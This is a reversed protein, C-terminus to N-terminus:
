KGLLKAVFGKNSLRAQWYPRFLSSYENRHKNGGGSGSVGGIGSGFGSMNFDPRAFFTQAASTTTVTLNNPGSKKLTTTFGISNKNKDNLDFFPKVGGGFWTQKNSVAKSNALPNSDGDAINWSTSEKVWRWFDQTSFNDPPNDIHEVDVVTSSSSPIWGWGMSYERFYCGIWRNSRLAHFSQTDISQWRGMDDMKSYGRRRLEHRKSPCRADVIWNNKKTYDRPALFKYLDTVQRIFPILQQGSYLKVYNPWSDDNIILDFEHKYRFKFTNAKYENLGEINSQISQNNIQNTAYPNSNKYNNTTAGADNVDVYNKELVSLIMNRRVTPLTKVIENQAQIFKNNIIEDHQSFASALDGHSLAMADFGTARAAALYAKGHSSGFMMAILYAPPNGRALQQAETGAYHAWSGLTVLHAMAVQHGIQSRNIYALTNLARAQVLAGSYTAADLAHNQKLKAAVVKANQFYSIFATLAAALIIVSLVIAQGSQTSLLYGHKNSNKCCSNQNFSFIDVRPLNM